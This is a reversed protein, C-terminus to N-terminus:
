GEADQLLEEGAQWEKGVVEGRAGGAGWIGNKRHMQKEGKRAEEKGAM